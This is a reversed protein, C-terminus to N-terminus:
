STAQQPPLVQPGNLGEEIKKVISELDIETKVFYDVAGSKRAKERDFQEGLATLMIIPIHKTKDTNHLIDLVDFGNIKPMMVDLLILDPQFELAASLAEEGNNVRKTAFGKIGLHTTYMTSLQDDDDVVLIRKKSDV